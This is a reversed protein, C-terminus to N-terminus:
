RIPNARIHDLVGATVRQASEQILWHGADLEVFTYPGKMFAHGAEVGARGIATDQNGWILLTPTIVDGFRVSPDDPDVGRSGRYWYPAPSRM